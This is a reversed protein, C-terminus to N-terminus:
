QVEITTVSLAPLTLQLSTGSAAMTRVLVPQVPNQCMASSATMRYIKAIGAVPLGNIATV